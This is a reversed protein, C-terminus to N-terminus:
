PQKGSRNSTLRLSHTISDHDALELLTLKVLDPVYRPICSRTGMSKVPMVGYSLLRLVHGPRSNSKRYFACLCCPCIANATGNLGYHLHRQFDQKQVFALLAFAFDVIM